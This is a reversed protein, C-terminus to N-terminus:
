KLLKRAKKFSELYYYAMTLKNKSVLKHAKAYIPSPVKLEVGLKKNFEAVEKLLKIKEKKSIDMNVIRYYLALIQQGFLFSIIDQRNNEVIIDYTINFANLISYFKDLSPTTAHSAVENHNYYYGSYNNLYLLSDIALFEELSFILDEGLYDYFTINNDNLISTKHIGNWVMVDKLPKDSSKIIIEDIESDFYSNHEEHDPYIGIYNCKVLDVDCSTIKDYMTECFDPKFEDDPDLFMIYDSEVVKLGANRPEAASGSNEELFIAEFNDYKDAYEKIIDRSGDTSADDVMIVQVESVDFTQNLISDLGKRLYKEVNFVPVIISIKYQILVM